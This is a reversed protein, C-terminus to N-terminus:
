TIALDIGLSLRWRTGNRHKGNRGSLGGLPVNILGSIGHVGTITSVVQLGHDVGLQLAHHPTVIHSYLWKYRSEPSLIWDSWPHRSYRTNESQNRSPIFVHMVRWEM